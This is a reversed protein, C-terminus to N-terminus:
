SLFSNPKSLSFSFPPANKKARHEKFIKGRPPLLAKRKYQMGTNESFGTQFKDNFASYFFNVHMKMTTKFKLM